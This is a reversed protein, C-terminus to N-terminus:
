GFKMLKYAWLQKGMNSLCQIVQIVVISPLVICYSKYDHLGVPIYIPSFEMPSLLPNVIDFKMNCTVVALISSLCSLFLLFLLNFKRALALGM